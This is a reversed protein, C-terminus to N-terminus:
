GPWYGAAYKWTWLFNLALMGGLLVFRAPRPLKDAADGVVFLAPFLVAGFRYMNALEGQFTVIGTSAAVYFALPVARPRRLIMAVAGGLLVFFFAHHLISFVGHDQWPNGFWLTALAGGLSHVERWLGHAHAFALPDGTTRYLWIPYLAFLAGSIAGAAALRGARAAWSPVLLAAEFAVAMAVFIGQTRTLAALGALMAAVIWRDRRVAVVAAFSWLLFMAETGHYHFTYTAPTLLFVLWGTSTAPLVGRWSAANPGRLTRAMLAVFAVFCALSVVTGALHPRSLTGTVWALARATEPFLPFFAYLRGSYGHRAIDDYYEADWNGLEAALGRHNHLGEVIWIIFHAAVLLAASWVVLRALRERGEPDADTV